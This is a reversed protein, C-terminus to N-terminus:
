IESSIPASALLERFRDYTVNCGIVYCTELDPDVKRLGSLVPVGLHGNQVALPTNDEPWIRRRVNWAELVLGDLPINVTYSPDALMARARVFVGMPRGQSKEWLFLRIDSELPLREKFEADFLVPAGSVSLDFRNEIPNAWGLYDAVMAKWTIACQEFGEGYAEAEVTSPDVELGRKAFEDAIELPM